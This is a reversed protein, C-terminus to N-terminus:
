EIRIEAMSWWGIGTTMLSMVKFNMHRNEVVGTGTLITNRSHGPYPIRKGL